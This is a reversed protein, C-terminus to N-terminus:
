SVPFVLGIVGDAFYYKTMEVVLERGRGSISIAIPIWSGRGEDIAHLNRFM